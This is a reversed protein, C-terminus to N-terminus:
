PKSPPAEGSGPAARPTASAPATGSSSDPTTPLPAPMVPAAAPASGPVPAPVPPTPLPSAPSPVGPVPLSPAPSPPAPIPAPPTLAPAPPKEDAFSIEDLRVRVDMQLQYIYQRSDFLPRQPAGQGPGGDATGASTGGPPTVDPATGPAVGPSEPKPAPALAAQAFQVAYVRGKAKAILRNGYVKAVHMMVASRYCDQAARWHMSTLPLPMYPNRFAGPARYVPLKALDEPLLKKVDSVDYGLRGVVLQSELIRFEKKRPLTAGLSAYEAGGVRFPAESNSVDLDFRIGQAFAGIHYVADTCAQKQVRESPAAPAAAGSPVEYLGADAVGEITFWTGESEALGAQSVCLAVLLALGMTRAKM